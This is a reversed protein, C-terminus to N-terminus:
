KKKEQLKKALLEFKGGCQCITQYTDIESECYTNNTKLYKEIKKSFKM